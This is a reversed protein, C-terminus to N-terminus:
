STRVADGTDDINIRRWLREPVRGNAVKRMGVATGRPVGPSTGWVISTSYRVEICKAINGTHYM